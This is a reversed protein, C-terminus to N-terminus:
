GTPLIFTTAGFPWVQPPGATERLWLSRKRVEKPRSPLSGGSRPPRGRTRSSITLSPERATGRELKYWGRPSPPALIGVPEPLDWGRYQLGVGSGRAVQLPRLTPLLIPDPVQRATNGARAGWCIWGPWRVELATSRPHGLFQDDSQGVANSLKQKRRSGQKQRSHPTCTWRLKRTRTATGTCYKHRRRSGSWPGEQKHPPGCNGM